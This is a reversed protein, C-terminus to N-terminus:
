YGGLWSRRLTIINTLVRNEFSKTVNVHEWTFVQIDKPPFIVNRGVTSSMDGNGVQIMTNIYLLSIFDNFYFWGSWTVYTNM